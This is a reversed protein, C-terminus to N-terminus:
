LELRVVTPFRRLTLPIPVKTHDPQAYVHGLQWIAWLGITFTVIGVVVSLSTMAARFSNGGDCDQEWDQDCLCGSVQGYCVCQYDQFLSGKCRGLETSSGTRREELVYGSLCRGALSALTQNRYNRPSECRWAM